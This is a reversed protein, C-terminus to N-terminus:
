AASPGQGYPRALQLLKQGSQANWVRATQDASATVIRTGDPGFAVSWVWAM